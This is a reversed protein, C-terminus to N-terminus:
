GATNLPIAHHDRTNRGRLYSISVPRTSMAHSARARELCIPGSTVSRSLHLSRTGIRVSVTSLRPGSPWNAIGSTTISAPNLAITVCRIPFQVMVRVGHHGNLGRQGGAHLNGDWGLPLDSLVGDGMMCGTRRLRGGTEKRRHALDMPIRFHLYMRGAQSYQTDLQERAPTSWGGLRLSHRGLFDWKSVGGEGKFGLSSTSPQSPGTGVRRGSGAGVLVRKLVPQGRRRVASAVGKTCPQTQPADPGVQQGYMTSWGVRM